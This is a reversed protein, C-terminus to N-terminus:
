CRVDRACSRRATPRENANGAFRSIRTRAVAASRRSRSSELDRAPATAFRACVRRALRHRACGRRERSVRRMFYPHRTPVGLFSAAGAHDGARARRRARSRSFCVLRSAVRRVELLSPSGFIGTTDFPPLHVHTHLTVVSGRRRPPFRFRFRAASRSLSRELTTPKDKTQTHATQM